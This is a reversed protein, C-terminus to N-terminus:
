TYLLGQEIKTLLIWNSSMVESFFHYLGKNKEGCNKTQSNGSIIEVKTSCQYCPISLLYCLMYCLEYLLLQPFVALWLSNITTNSSLLFYVSCSLVLISSTFFCHNGVANRFMWAPLWISFLSIKNNFFIFVYELKDSPWNRFFCMAIHCKKCVM